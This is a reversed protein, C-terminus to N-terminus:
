NRTRRGDRLLSDTLSLFKRRFHKWTNQQAVEYAAEGMARLRPRDGCVSDIAAALQAVSGARVILGSEGDTIMDSAGTENSVISPIGCGMGDGVVLSFSDELSPLVQCDFGTMAKAFERPPLLPRIVISPNAVIHKLLRPSQFIEDSTLCWLEAGSPRLANWAEFLQRIGKRFPETGAFLFRIKGSRRKNAPKRLDVGWPIVRIRDASYGARRFYRAAVNSALLITDALECEMHNRWFEIPRKHILPVGCAKRERNTVAVRHELVTGEMHLLRVADPRERAAQLFAELCFESQGITLRSGTRPLAAGASVSHYTAYRSRLISDLERSVRKWSTPGKVAYAYTVSERSSTRERRKKKKFKERLISGFERSLPKECGDFGIPAVRMAIRLGKLRLLRALSESPVVVLDFFANLRDVFLRDNSASTLHEHAACFVNVLGPANRVDHKLGHFLYFDPVPPFRPVRAGERNPFVTLDFDAALRRALEESLRSVSSGDDCDRQFLLTKREAM